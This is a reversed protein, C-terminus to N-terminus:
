TSGPTAIPKNPAWPDDAEDQLQSTLIDLVVWLRNGASGYEPATISVQVADALDLFAAESIVPWMTRMDRYSLPGGLSTHPEGDRTTITVPGDHTNTVAPDRVTVLLGAKEAADLLRYYLARDAVFGEVAARQEWWLGDAGTGSEGPQSCITLYGLRNVTALSLLLDKTEEDPGCNPQYGPWSAIDGELWLAMLQGLDAVNKAARWRRRDARSMRPFTLKM